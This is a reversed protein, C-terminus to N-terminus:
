RGGLNAYVLQYLLPLAILLLAQGIWHWRRQKWLAWAPIGGLLTLLAFCATIKLVGPLGAQMRIDSSSYVAFTLAVYGVAITMAAGLAAMVLDFGFLYKM